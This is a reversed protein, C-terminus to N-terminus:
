KGLMGALEGTPNFPLASAKALAKGNMGRAYLIFFGLQAHIQAMGVHVMPPGVRGATACRGPTSPAHGVKHAVVRHNQTTHRQFGPTVGVVFRRTQHAVLGYHVSISVHDLFVSFEM